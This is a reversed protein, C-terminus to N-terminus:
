PSSFAKAPATGAPALLVAILHAKLKSSSFFFLAQSFFIPSAVRLAAHTSNMAPPGCLRINPPIWQQEEEESESIIMRPPSPGHDMHAFLAFINKGARVENKVSTFM